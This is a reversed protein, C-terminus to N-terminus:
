ITLKAKATPSVDDKLKDFVHYEYMQVYMIKKTFTLDSLYSYYFSDDM